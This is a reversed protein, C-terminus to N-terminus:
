STHSRVNKIRFRLNHEAAFKVTAVVDEAKTANVVYSSMAGLTCEGDVPDPASGDEKPDPVPCGRMDDTQEWNTYM